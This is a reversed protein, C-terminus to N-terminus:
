GAIKKIFQLYNKHTGKIFIPILYTCALFALLVYLGPKEKTVILQTGESIFILLALCFVDLMNFISIMHIFREIRYNNEPKLKITWLVILGLIHLIPCLILTFLVFFTLLLSTNWLTIESTFISYENNAFFFDNIKIIPTNIAMVLAIFTVMLLLFICVRRTINVKGFRQIFIKKNSLSYIGKRFVITEIILACTMSLFIATLFFYVGIKLTSTILFQENTM